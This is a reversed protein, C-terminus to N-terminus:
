AHTTTTHCTPKTPPADPPSTTNSSSLESLNVTSNKLHTQRSHYRKNINGPQCTTPTAHPTSFDLDDCSSRMAQRTRFLTKVPPSQNDTQILENLSDSGVMLQCLITANICSFLSEMEEGLGPYTAYRGKCFALAICNQVNENDM